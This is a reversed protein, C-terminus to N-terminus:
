GVSEHLRLLLDALAERRGLIHGNGIECIVYPLLGHEFACEIGNIGSLGRPM